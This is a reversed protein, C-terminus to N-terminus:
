TEWRRNISYRIAYVSRTLLVTTHQVYLYAEQAYNFYAM